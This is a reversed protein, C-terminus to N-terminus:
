CHHSKVPRNPSLELKHEPINPTPSTSGVHWRLFSFLSLFSTLILEKTSTVIWMFISNFSAQLHLTVSRVTLPTEKWVPCITRWPWVGLYVKTLLLKTHLHAIISNKNTKIRLNMVQLQYNIFLLQFFFFLPPSSSLPRYWRAKVWRKIGKRQDGPNRTEILRFVGRCFPCVKWIGKRHARKPNSTKLLRAVWWGTQNWANWILKCSVLVHQATHSKAVWFSKQHLQHLLVVAVRIKENTLAMTSGINVNINGRRSGCNKRAQRKRQLGKLLFISVERIWHLNYLDLWLITM